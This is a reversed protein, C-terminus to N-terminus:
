IIMNLLKNTSTIKVVTVAINKKLPAVIQHKLPTTLADLVDFYLLEMGEGAFAFDRGCGVAGGDAVGSIGAGGVALRGAGVGGVRAAAFEDPTQGVRSGDEANIWPRFDDGGLGPFTLLLNALDGKPDIIIAPVGDM